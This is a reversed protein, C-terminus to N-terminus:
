FRHTLITSLWPLNLLIIFKGQDRQSHSLFSPIRTTGRIRAFDNLLSLVADSVKGGVNDFYIDVGDPCVEKLAKQLDDTTKYNIGKDFGLENEM